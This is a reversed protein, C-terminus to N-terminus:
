ATWTASISKGLDSVRSTTVGSRAIMLSCTSSTTSGPESPENPTSGPWAGSSALDGDERVDGFLGLLDIERAGLGGLDPGLLADGIRM